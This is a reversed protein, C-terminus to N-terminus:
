QDMNESVAMSIVPSTEEKLRRSMVYGDMWFYLHHTVLDMQATTYNNVTERVSREREAGPTPHTSQDDGDTM